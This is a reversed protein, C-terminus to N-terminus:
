GKHYENCLLAFVLSRFYYSSCAFYFADPLSLSFIRTFYALSALAPTKDLNVPTYALYFVLPSMVRSKVGIHRHRRHYVNNMIM